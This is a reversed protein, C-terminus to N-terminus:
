NANETRICNINVVYVGEFKIIPYYQILLKKAKAFLEDNITEIGYFLKCIKKWCAACYGIAERTSQQKLISTGKVSTKKKFAKYFRECFYFCSAEDLEIRFSSHLNNLIVNM